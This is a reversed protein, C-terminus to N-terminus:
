SVQATSRDLIILKLFRRQQVSGGMRDRSYSRTGFWEDFCAEFDCVCLECGLVFYINTSLRPSLTLSGSRQCSTYFHLQDAHM